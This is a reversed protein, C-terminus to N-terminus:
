HDLTSLLTPVTGKGRALESQLTHLTSNAVEEPAAIDKPTGLNRTTEEGMPPGLISPKYQFLTNIDILLLHSPTVGM